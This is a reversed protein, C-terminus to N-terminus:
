REGTEKVRPPQLLCKPKRRAPKLSRAQRSLRVPTMRVPQVTGPLILLFCNGDTSGLIKPWGVFAEVRAMPQSQLILFVAAVINCSLM